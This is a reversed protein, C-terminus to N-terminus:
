CDRLIEWAKFFPTKLHNAIPVDIRVNWDGPLYYGQDTM